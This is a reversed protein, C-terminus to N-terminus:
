MIAIVDGWKSISKLRVKNSALSSTFIWSRALSFCALNLRESQNTACHVLRDHYHHRM